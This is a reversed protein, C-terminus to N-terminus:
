CCPNSGCATMCDSYTCFCTDCATEAASCDCTDHCTDQCIIGVSTPCVCTRAVTLLTIEGGKAVKMEGRGLNAVTQKKLSLKKNFNKKM